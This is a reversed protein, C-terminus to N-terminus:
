RIIPPPPPYVVIQDYYVVMGRTIIFFLMKNKVLVAGASVTDPVTEAQAYSVQRTDLLAATQTFAPAPLLLIALATFCPKIQM